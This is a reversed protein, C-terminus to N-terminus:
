SLIGVGKDARPGGYDAIILLNNEVFLKPTVADEVKFM